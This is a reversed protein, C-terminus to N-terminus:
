DPTDPHSIGDAFDDANEGSDVADAALIAAMPLEAPAAEADRLMQHISEAISQLRSVIRECDTTNSLEETLVETLVAVFAKLQRDTIAGPSRRAFREPSRRELWWVSARWDKKERAAQQVNGMHSLEAGAEARRVAAQFRPDDKLQARIAALSCGAYDAATQRDCGVSLIGCIQAQQEDSLPLPMLQCSM